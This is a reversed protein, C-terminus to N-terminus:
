ELLAQQEDTNHDRVLDSHSFLPAVASYWCYSSPSWLSVSCWICPHADAPGCCSAAYGWCCWPSRSVTQSSFGPLVAGMAKTFASSPQTPATRQHASRPPQPARSTNLRTSSVLTAAPPCGNARARAGAAMAAEARAAHVVARVAAHLMVRPPMASKPAVADVQGVAAPANFRLM